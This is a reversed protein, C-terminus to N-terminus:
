PLRFEGALEASLPRRDAAPFASMATVSRDEISPVAPRVHSALRAYLAADCSM